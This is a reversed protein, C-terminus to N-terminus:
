STAIAAMPALRDNYPGFLEWAWDNWVRCMDNSFDADRTAWAMLGKNPFLIEADVGDMKLDALREEPEKGARSRAKDEGTFSSERLKTPRFGESIHWKGGKEDVEVRPLRSRYKEPMRDYFLNTPENVHGDASVLFMKNPDNPRATRPWGEAGPTELRWLNPENVEIKKAEM